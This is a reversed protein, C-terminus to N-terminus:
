NHSYLDLSCHLLVFFIVYQKQEVRLGDQLWSANKQDSHLETKTITHSKPDKSAIISWVSCILNPLHLAGINGEGKNIQVQYIKLHDGRETNAIREQESWIQRTLDDVSSDM